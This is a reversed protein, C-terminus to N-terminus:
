IDRGESLECEGEAAAEHTGREGIVSLAFANGNHPNPYLQISNCCHVTNLLINRFLRQKHFEM